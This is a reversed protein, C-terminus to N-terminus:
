EASAVEAEVEAEVPAPQNAKYDLRVLSGEKVVYWVDKYKANYSLATSNNSDSVAAAVQNKVKENVEALLAMDEETELAFVTGEGECIETCIELSMLAIIETRTKGKTIPAGNDDLLINVFRDLYTMKGSTGRAKVVNATTAALVKAMLAEQASQTKSM